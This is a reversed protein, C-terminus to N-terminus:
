RDRNPKRERILSWHCSIGIAKCRWVQLNRGVGPLDQVVNVGVEELEKAPGVGSLMLLQPTNIAGGSLIVKDALARRTEGDTSVYEVGVARRGEFLVRTVLVGEETALRESREALAPRLYASAASWRRGDRITMDFWSVGEQQYGNVDTSFPYGAQQGAELFVEHLPNNWNRMSVHLPGDGGRYQDEGLQHTQCKKFYPLCAFYNWGKAGEKEWRDFDYAHGRLLALHSLCM